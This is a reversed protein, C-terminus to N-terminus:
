LQRQHPQLYRIRAVYVPPSSQVTMSQLAPLTTIAEPVVVTSQAIVPPDLPTYDKNVLQASFTHIGPPVNKWVAPVDALQPSDMYTGAGTFAPKGKETPPIVDYYYIVTQQTNLVVIRDLNLASVFIDVNVGAKADDLRSAPVSNGWELYCTCNLTTNYYFVAACNDFQM